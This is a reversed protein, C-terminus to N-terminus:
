PRHGRHVWNGFMLVLGAGTVAAFVRILNLPHTPTATATSAYSTMLQETAGILLEQGGARATETDRDLDKVLTGPLLVPHFLSVDCKKNVEISHVDITTTTIPFFGTRDRKQRCHQIEVHWPFWLESIVERYDGTTIIGMADQALPTKPRTVERRRISWGCKPDLWLKDHFDGPNASDTIHSVVVCPSGDIFESKALAEYAHARLGQPLFYDNDTSPQDHIWIGLNGLYRHEFSLPGAPPIRNQLVIRKAVFQKISNTGDFYFCLEIPENGILETDLRERAVVRRMERYMNKYFDFQAEIVERYRDGERVGSGTYAALGTVSCRYNVSFSEIRKNRSELGASIQKLVNGDVPSSGATAVTPHALGSVLCMVLIISRRAADAGPTSAFFDSAVIFRIHIAILMAVGPLM